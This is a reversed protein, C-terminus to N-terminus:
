TIWHGEEMLSQCWHLKKNGEEKDWALGRKCLYQLLSAFLQEAAVRLVTVGVVVFSLHYIILYFLSTPSTIGSMKKLSDLIKLLFRCKEESLKKSFM